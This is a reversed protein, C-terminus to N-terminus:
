IKKRGHKRMYESIDTDSRDKFVVDPVVCVPFPITSAECYPCLCFRRKKFLNHMSESHYLRPGLKMSSPFSYARTILGDKNEEDKNVVYLMAEEPDYTM